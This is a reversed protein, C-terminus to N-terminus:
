ASTRRGSLSADQQGRWHDHARDHSRRTSRALRLAAAHADHEAQDPLPALPGFDPYRRALARALLHDALWPNRPLVPGHLYTAHVQRYRAGETGDQGNNGAGCLVRGLPQAGGGLFTRGGHNESGTITGVQGDGLECRVAVPGTLRDQGGVTAADLVGLGEIPQGSVPIYYQGLLQYGAGVAFVVVDREIADTIGARKATLDHAAAAMERDEGGPLLILDAQTFDPTEDDIDAETVGCGVGRWACRQRLTLLNGRDGSVGLLRPYLDYIRLTVAAATM